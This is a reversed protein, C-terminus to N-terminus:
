TSMDFRHCSSKFFITFYTHLISLYMMQPPPFEKEM